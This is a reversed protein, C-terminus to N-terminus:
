GELYLATTLEAPRAVFPDSASNKGAIPRGVRTENRVTRSARGDRM